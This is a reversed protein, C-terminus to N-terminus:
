RKLPISDKGRFPTRPYMNSTAGIDANERSDNSEENRDERKNKQTTRMSAIPGNEMSKKEPVNEFM